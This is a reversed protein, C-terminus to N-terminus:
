IKQNLQLFQEFKLGKQEALTLSISWCKETKNLDTLKLLYWPQRNFKIALWPEAGFKEGFLKSQNIEEAELYKHSNKFAKCEIAISKVGNGALLDPSPFGMNGSGAVRICAWGNEWFKHLLDREAVTGKTKLNVM